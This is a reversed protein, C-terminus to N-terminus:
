QISYQFHFVSRNPVSHHLHVPRKGEHNGPQTPAAPKSGQGADRTIMGGITLRLFLHFHLIRLINELSRTDSRCWRLDAVM